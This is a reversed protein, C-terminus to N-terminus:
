GAMSTGLVTVALLFAGYAAMLVIGEEAGMSWKGMAVPLLLVSLVILAVTDLRWVAYPFALPNLLTWDVHLGGGHFLPSLAPLIAHAYSALALLPLLACLNLLVVGVLATVPAWSQEDAAHRRAQQMMPLTLAVSLVTAALTGTSLHGKAAGGYHVAGFTAGCAGAAAVAVAILVALITWPSRASEGATLSGTSFGEAQPQRWLSLIVLGEVALAVAGQWLVFGTLGVLFAMLAAALTFPWIRRGYAPAPGVPAVLCVSGIAASLIAVSTGFIVGIAIEPRGMGLAVVAM